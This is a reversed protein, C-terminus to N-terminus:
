RRASAHGLMRQVTKVNAGASIALSAATDRLDHPTLPALGARAVAPDFIYHRFNSNRLPGGRSATFVRDDPDMGVIHAALEPRLFRPLPVSRTRRAKPSGEHLHGDAETLNEVTRVIVRMGKPWSSLDLLGTVDTVVADPRIQGEADLAPPWVGAQDLIKLKKAFDVPAPIRGLVAGAALEALRHVRPHM